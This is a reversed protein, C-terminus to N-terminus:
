TKPSLEDNQQKDGVGNRQLDFGPFSRISAEITWLILFPSQLNGSWRQRRFIGALPTTGTAARVAILGGGGVLMFIAHIPGQLQRVIEIGM